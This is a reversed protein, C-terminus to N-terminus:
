GNKFVYDNECSCFRLIPSNSVFDDFQGSFYVYILTEAAGSWAMAESKWTDCYRAVLMELLAVGQQQSEKLEAQQKCMEHMDVLFKLRVQESEAKALKLEAITTRLNDNGQRLILNQKLNISQFIQNWM